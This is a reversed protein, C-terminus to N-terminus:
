CRDIMARLAAQLRPGAAPGVSMTEEYHDGPAFPDAPYVFEEQPLIYGLEDNALGIVGATTAGAQRLQAKFELGLRPFLEGPVGFLWTSGIRILNAESTISGDPNLLDPLLGAAMAMQFVPNTMPVTVEHRSHELHVVPEPRSGSLAGLAAQALIRGMQDAEVFSHEEVDPTMMGGLAGVMVACPAGTEAEVGRRLSDIYDATISTNDEWLVEPHCPYILWTALSAGTEPHCFQLCTLEEDLIEPDRANRAVGTVPV